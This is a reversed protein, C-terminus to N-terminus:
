EKRSISIMSEYLKYVEASLCSYQDSKPLQAPRAQQPQQHTSCADATDSIYRSSSPPSNMNFDGIFPRARIEQDSM